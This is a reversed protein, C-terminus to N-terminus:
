RHSRDEHLADIVVIRPRGVKSMKLLSRWFVSNDSEAPNTGWVLLCETQETIDPEITWGFTLTDSWIRPNWRMQGIGANNPSGFLSM